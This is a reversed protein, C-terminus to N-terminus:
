KKGTEEQTAAAPKEQKGAGKQSKKATVSVKKPKVEIAKPLDIELVGKDYSAAIKDANVTSPITISRSFSGYSTESYSYGKRKVESEAKKEGEIILTDGIVSVDIDEQDVGPLEVKIVFRDDKELVHIPPSWMASESFFGQWRTPFFPRGFIDDFRRAPVQRSPAPQRVRLGKEPNQKQKAM